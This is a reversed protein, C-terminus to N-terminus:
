SECVEVTLTGRIEGTGEDLVLCHYRGTAAGEPVDIRVLGRKTGEEYTVEINSANGDKDELARFALACPRYSKNLELCPLAKKSSVVEVDPPPCVDDSTSCESGSKPMWGDFCWLSGVYEFWMCSMESLADTFMRMMRQATDGVGGYCDSGSRKGRKVQDDILRKCAGVADRVGSAYRRRGSSSGDEGGSRAGGYMTSKRNPTTRASPTRHRRTGNKKATKKTGAKRRASQKKAAKKAAAKKKGAKKRAAKRKASKKKAAV